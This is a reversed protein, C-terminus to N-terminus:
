PNLRREGGSIVNLAGAVDFLFSLEGCAVSGQPGATTMQKALRLTGWLGTESNQDSNGKGRQRSFARQTAGVPLGVKGLLIEEPTLVSKGM